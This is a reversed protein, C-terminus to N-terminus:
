DQYGSRHRPWADRQSQAPATPLIGTDLEVPGSPLPLTLAEGYSFEERSRYAGDAPRSYCLARRTYPDLILYVPIGAAAYAATKALYDNEVSSPSVIEGALEILEAGRKPTDVPSWLVVDPSRPTDWEPHQFEIEGVAELGLEPDLRADLLETVRRFTRIRELSVPSMMVFGDGPVVEVGELTEAKEMLGQLLEVDSQIKKDVPYEWGRGHSM